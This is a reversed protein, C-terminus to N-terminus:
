AETQDFMSVPLQYARAMLGEEGNHTVGPILELQSRITRIKPAKDAPWMDQLEYATLARDAQKLLAHIVDRANLRKPKQARRFGTLRDFMLGWKGNLPMTDAVEGDRDKWLHFMSYSGDEATMPRELGLLIEAGWQYASSGFLDHPSLAARAAPKRCHMPLMLAFGYRERWDDFRRMLETAAQTDNPDGRHLKYLPDALVIDYRGEVFTKEMFDIADKDSDLALGDPVRLYKVNTNGELGVERLVRKVSKTGQEVDVILARLGGKGHWHPDLFDEGKVASAVMHMTLTTKGHGTHGGVVIRYGRYILPGLLYGEVDPDPLAMVEPASLVRLREKSVEGAPRLEGLKLGAKVHDTVDKGVAPQLMTVHAGAAELSAKVQEAHEQGHRKGTKPDEPDMDQIVAVKAGKFIVSYSDRWKGAGGPCTTAVQGKAELTHVDREGEVVVVGKGANLAELVAPLRYIVRRVDGLTWEWGGRGDPRRQRFGKPLTREVQFLLNGHEDTYDYREIVERKTPPSEKDPDPEFLATLEIHLAVAIEDLTCGAHCFVLARGDSGEGLHFSPNRDEHAPCLADWGRQENGRPNLDLAWLHALVRDVAKSPM